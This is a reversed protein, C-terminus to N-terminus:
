ATQGGFTQALVQSGGQTRADQRIQDMRSRVLSHLVENHQKLKRLESDKVGEPMGLLQQAIQDASALMDEPTQPTNQGLSQLYSTVPAPPAMAQQDPSGGGQQPQGPQPQPVSGTQGKAIQQAFGAQDMEEQARAQEEAQQRAEESLRKQESRWNLGLAKLATTASVQNSMMLQLTAVQKEIDDAYTVSRLKLYAEEWGMIRSSQRAFWRLFRNADSVLHHWTAEFVRISVPANQAQMTGRYMEVPTGANNLLLETGQNMLEVPALQSADGGLAQYQIPFGLTHWGAPDRRHRRLMGRVDSMFDGMDMNLLPDGAGSSMAGGRAVPTILRFPVVYDLAIAENYRRLVQVYWIQRFNTLIRSIGWGRVPLGALSPERMHYIADQEFRFYNQGRRLADLVPMPVREVHFLHGKRVLRKYDEPLRWFYANDGTFPDHLIEIEHPSWRKVSLKEQRDDIPDYVEWKGRYGSGTKCKPCTAVFELNSFSFDFVPEEGVVKLPFASGCRPCILIRRFPVIMSAFGNGYCIRDRLLSQTTAICDVQEQYEEWKEKEDDGVKEIDISTLFYSLVREMAARYTGEANFVFECLQLANRIGNPMALSAADLFPDPFPGGSELGGSFVQSSTLQSRFDQAYAM